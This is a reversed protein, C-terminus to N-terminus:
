VAPLEGEVQDPLSLTFTSGEQPRSRVEISGGLRLALDRCFMLGIGSGKEGETGRRKKNSDMTFLSEVIQPEMGMGSDAVSLCMRSSAEDYLAAISVSGGRPTFKIANSLFNRLIAEAMRRDTSVWPCSGGEIRISVDKAAATAEQSAVIGEILLRTDLQERLVAIEDMQARVWDLLNDLLRYLADVSGHMDPIYSRIESETFAGGEQMIYALLNRVTGLPGRLDHAFITFLREKLSNQEESREHLLAQESALLEELPPDPEKM